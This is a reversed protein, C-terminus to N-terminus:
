PAPEYDVGDWTLIGTEPDYLHDPTELGELTIEGQICTYGGGEGVDSYMWMFNGDEAFQLTWHCLVPGMPGLGCELEDVSQFTTGVIEECLADPSGDFCVWTEGACAGCCGMEPDPCPCPNTQVLTCQGVSCPAGEGDCTEYCGTSPLQPVAGFPCAAPELHDLGPDCAPGDTDGGSDGASTASAGDSGGDDSDGDTADGTETQGMDDGSDEVNGLPEPEKAICANLLLSASLAPIITQLTM